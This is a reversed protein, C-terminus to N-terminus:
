KATSAVGSLLRHYRLDTRLQVLEAETRIEELSYKAAIASGLFRLADGRRGAVESAIAAKFWAKGSKNALGEFKKLQSLAEAQQGSKALYGALNAQLEADNPSSALKEQVLAIARAYAAASKDRMGPAWRYADGLNGWNVYNTASLEVAKEFLPVSDRFRGQSYRLTGYNGYAQATPEIEIAEQLASAADDSRGLMEDAAAQNRLLRANRPALQLAKEWAKLADDYRQIGFYFRGAAMYPFWHGQANNLAKTVLAESDARRGEANAIGALGLYAAWNKPDLDRARDFEGSAEKRKGSEVLANGLAAHAIALDTNLSIAQEAAERALAVWQADPAATNRQLYAESLGAYAAAFKPDRQIAAQM